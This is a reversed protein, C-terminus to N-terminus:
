VFCETLTLVILVRPNTVWALVLTCASFTLRKVLIALKHYLAVQVFWRFFLFFSLDNHFILSLFLLLLLSLTLFNLERQRRIKAICCKRVVGFTVFDHIDVNLWRLLIVLGFGQSSDIVSLGLRLLKRIEFCLRVKELSIQIPIVRLRWQLVTGFHVNAYIIVFFSLLYCFLLSFPSQHSQFYLLYRWIQLRDHFPFFNELVIHLFM